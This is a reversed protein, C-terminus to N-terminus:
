CFVSYLNRMLAQLESTHEESRDEAREIELDAVPQGEGRAGVIRLVALTERGVDDAGVDERRDIEVRRGIREEAAIQEEARADIRQRRGIERRIRRDDQGVAAAGVREGAELRELLDSSCVDSSWDSIRM